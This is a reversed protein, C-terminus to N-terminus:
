PTIVYGVLNFTELVVGPRMRSLKEDVKNESKVCWM